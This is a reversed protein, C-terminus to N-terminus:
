TYNCRRMLSALVEDDSPFASALFGKLPIPIEDMRYATGRRHVGYVATTIRITPVFGTVVEPYDLVITPITALHAQAEPSFQEVTESGVLLCADVEGRALMENASFEGPNFRPYGRGLNVSFPYGTQWCLVSDAGTVDGYVRLRRAYFRTYEHLDRVLLLLAAVNLHGLGSRSLGLGFFVVGSRCGKMREALDQLAHRSIGTPAAPDPLEGDILRRLAWLAEFDRDPEVQLFIDARASSATPARDVVVVTRDRRGGPLFEGTPDISYREFHRPHSIAPDCGWFIVLDARNRPEGLSSTSEGTDQFAMISPAHCLSATTDITAGIKDALAVAARQGDTSSRSLGYILPADSAALIAAARELAADFSADQGAIAALPPNRSGLARYWEAAMECARQAEVIRGAEVTVRLDDCVCGCQTCAVNEVVQPM